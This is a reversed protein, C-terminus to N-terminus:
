LTGKIEEERKAECIAIRRELLNILHRLQDRYETILTRDGSVLLSNDARYITGDLISTLNSERQKFLRLDSRLNDLHPDCVWEPQKFECPM